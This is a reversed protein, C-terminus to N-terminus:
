CAKLVQNSMFYSSDSNYICWETNVNGEENIEIEFKVVDDTVVETITGWSLNYKDKLYNCTMEIYKDNVLEYTGKM